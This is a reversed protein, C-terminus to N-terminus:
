WLVAVGYLSFERDKTVIAMGDNLAHSILLRDWPDGHHLPL